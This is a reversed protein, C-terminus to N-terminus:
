DGDAHTVLGLHNEKSCAAQRGSCPGGADQEGGGAEAGVNRSLERSLLPSVCVSGRFGYNSFFLLTNERPCHSRRLHEWGVRTAAERTMCVAEEEMLLHGAARRRGLLGPFHLKRRGRTLASREARGPLCLALVQSVEPARSISSFTEIYERQIKIDM